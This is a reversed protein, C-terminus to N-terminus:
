QCKNLSAPIPVTFAAAQESTLSVHLAIRHGRVNHVSHLVNPNLLVWKNKQLVTEVVPKVTHFHNIQIDNQRIVSQGQEQWWFSTQNDNSTQLLYMLLYDRTTDTHIGIVSDEEHTRVACALSADLFDSVINDKVWKEFEFDFDFRLVSVSHQLQGFVDLTRFWLARDKQRVPSSTKCARANCKEPDHAFRLASDVIHQPVTPLDLYRYYFLNELQTQDISGVSNEM